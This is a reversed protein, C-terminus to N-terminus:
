IFLAALASVAFLISLIITGIFLQKELGRKTRFVAADSSGGFTGGLGAESQQLLVAGILLISLVVQIWPLVSALTTM